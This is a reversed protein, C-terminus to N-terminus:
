AYDNCNLRRLPQVLKHHLRQQKQHRDTNSNSMAFLFFDAMNKVEDETPSFRLAQTNIQNQYPQERNENRSSPSSGPDVM